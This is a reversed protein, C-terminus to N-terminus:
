EAELAKEFNRAAVTVEVGCWADHEVLYILEKAAEILKKNEPVYKVVKVDPDLTYTFADATSKVLSAIAWHATPFGKDKIPTGDKTIVWVHRQKKM